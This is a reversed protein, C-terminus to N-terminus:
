RRRVVWVGTGLGIVALVMLGLPLFRLRNAETKPINIDYEPRSKPPVSVGVSSKERLWSVCSQFLDLRLAERNGTLGDDTIWSSTGFVVMRPTDKQLASHAADRPVGPASGSDAVTVAICLPTQSIIKEAREENDRLADRTAVPDRALDTEAWILLDPPILMLRDVAKPGGEKQAPEVTRANEFYFVRRELVNPFFAKAIPNPSNPNTLAMLELPDRTRLNLIRDNGVKVNYEALLPELGTQVMKATNGDRQIIPDLMVILKGAAVKVQGDKDKEEQRQLYDRLVKVEGLGFEQTPRAILLMSADDPVAKTSRDLKLPKVQVSKRETLKGKLRSLSEGGKARPRAMPSAVSDLPLEGHGETVYIVLKGETLSTLANLLASEGVYAIKPAARPGQNQTQFLDRYKIFEHNKREQDEGVTVLLGVPDSITYTKMFEQIQTKNAPDTPSILQWKFKSSMSACNELLTQTDMSIENDRPMLLYVKVPEQLDALFNRLQPSVTNVEAKTWDFPRGFFRTFPEAYALVNPLALVALLLLTTLVANYGYILRRIGQSRREMGRGLQLSLFMLILGGLFALSPWLLAQPNKRWEEMGKALIGRYASTFPLAFGLLATALGALGGATLLQLRLMESESLESTRTDFSIGVIGLALAILSMMMGWLFVPGIAVNFSYRILLYVPIAAFAAALVLLGYNIKARYPVLNELNIEPRPTPPQHTINSM